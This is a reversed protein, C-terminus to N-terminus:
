FETNWPLQYSGKLKTSIVLCVEVYLTVNLRTRTVMIVTSFRFINFITIIHKYDYTGLTLHVHAMSDDTAQRARRCKEM